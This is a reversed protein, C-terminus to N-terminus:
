KQKLRVKRINYHDSTVEERLTETLLSYLKDKAETLSCYNQSCFDDKEGKVTKNVEKNISQFDEESIAKSLKKMFSTTALALGGEVFMQDWVIQGLAFATQWKKKTVKGKKSNKSHNAREVIELESHDVLDANLSSRSHQRTQTTSSM